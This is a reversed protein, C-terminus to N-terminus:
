PGRAGVVSPAPGAALLRSPHIPPFRLVGLLFFRPRQYRHARSCIPVHVYPCMLVHIWPPKCMGLSGCGWVDVCGFCVRWVCVRWVCQVKDAFRFVKKEIAPCYRPGQGRGANAEFTPLHAMHQKILDHTAKNTHTVHCNVLRDRNPIHSLDNMYSFAVPPDDSPQIALGTYDITRSDIRPPTGPLCLCVRCPNSTDGRPAACAAPRPAPALVPPCM